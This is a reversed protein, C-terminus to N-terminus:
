EPVGDLNAPAMAIAAVTWFVAQTPVLNFAGEAMAVVMYVALALRATKQVPANGGVMIPFGWIGLILLTGIPGFALWAAAYLSESSWGIRQTSIVEIDEQLNTVRGGLDADLLFSTPDKGISLSVVVAVALVAISVIVARSIRAVSREMMAGLLELMLLGVWVSRSITLLCISRYGISSPVSAIAAMPGWILVNVGLINGNNYTSFMKIFPGRLNHREAVEAIDAGTTTVFPIGIVIGALNYLLFSLLGFVFVPVLSWRLVQLFREMGLDRIMGNAALLATVPVIITSAIISVIAGRSESGYVAFYFLELVTLVMLMIGLWLYARNISRRRNSALRGIELVALLGILLYGFTIPIEGVYIGAKPFGFSVVLTVIALLTPLRITISKAIPIAVSHRVHKPSLRSYREQRTM